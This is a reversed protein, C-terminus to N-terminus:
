PILREQFTSPTFLSTRITKLMANVEHILKILAPTTSGTQWFAFQDDFFLGPSLCQLSQYIHDRVLIREM